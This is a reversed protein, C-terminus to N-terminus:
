IQWISNNGGSLREVLKNRREIKKDRDKLGSNLRLISGEGALISINKVIYIFEDDELAQSFELQSFYLCGSGFKSCNTGLILHVNPIRYTDRWWGVKMSIWYSKNNVILPCDSKDNEFYFEEDGWNKDIHRESVKNIMLQINSNDKTIIIEDILQTNLIIAKMKEANDVSLLHYM